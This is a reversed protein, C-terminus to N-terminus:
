PRPLRHSQPEPCPEERLADVHPRSRQQICPEAAPDPPKATTQAGTYIAVLCPKGGLCFGSTNDRDVVVSGTFIMVGGAEPIAVPLEQWHILDKSVAHGWSMHGWTDGFPNYQYFLHYEGEFYVPGNPDNTWNAKPSFHFQPRYPEGYPQAFLHLALAPFLLWKM